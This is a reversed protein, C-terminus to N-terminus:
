NEAPAAASIPEVVTVNEASTEEKAAKTKPLKVKKEAPERLSKVKMEYKFEVEVGKFNQKKQGPLRTAEYVYPGKNKADKTIDELTVIITCYDDEKYLSSCAQNAAKRAAGGPSSNLFKGGKFNEEKGDRKISIVSFLRKPKDKKADQTANPQTSNVQTEIQTQTDDTVTAM